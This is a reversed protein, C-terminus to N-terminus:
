IAFLVVAANKLIPVTAKQGQPVQLYLKIWLEWLMIKDQPVTARVFVALEDYRGVGSGESTLADINLEIKDNKSLEM